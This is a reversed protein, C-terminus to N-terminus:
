PAPAAPLAAPASGLQQRVEREFAANEREQTEQRMEVAYLRELIASVDWSAPGSPAAGGSRAVQEVRSEMKELRRLATAVRKELGALQGVPQEVAGMREGLAAIEAQLTEAEARLAVLNQRTEDADSGGGSLSLALALVLALAVAGLVLYRRALRHFFARLFRDEQPTIQFDGEQPEM